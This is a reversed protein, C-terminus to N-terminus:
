RDSRIKKRLVAATLGGLAVLILLAWLSLQTDDGTKPANSGTQQHQGAANTAAPTSGAESSAAPDTNGEGSGTPEAGTEGGEGAESANTGQSGSTPETTPETSSPESSEQTSEGTSEGPQEVTYNCAVSGITLAGSTVGDQFRYVPRQGGVTYSADAIAFGEYNASVDVGAPPLLHVVGPETTGNLKVQAGLNGYGNDAMVWLIDEYTDYDLAMAGGIKPNIESVQVASGDENLVYAYVHGNDELAVFFVGAGVANPYHDASFPSGTNQDVLLTEVDAFSVWEVAEIGMNASVQPLSATLDWEKQAVLDEGEAQPDVMLITNYNVGKASNDRESALYVMGNGDVTIGEADPGAAGPDGADKQFRVRKGNEFGDAFTLTGDGAVDLVWFRGTGNDVAYLQGGAFDLGSSDELFTSTTDFATVQDAGPWSIEDPIGAFQNAAGPTAALTNRYETGNVDPYLGWTPNTHDTWTTSAIMRGEEFLRVTDGKGLGFGLDDLVLFGGASIVTGDPIVYSHADDEDRIEIGSVDLPQSTPNALEVWDPGGDPDNSQIENLVVPNTELNVAGKTPVAFDVFDGTGDPIRAYVGNAHSTWSYEAVVAGSRNHITVQDESGLGFSFDRNGDFVYYEGPNLVTGETVPTTENQHGVPDNDLLYWGSIDVPTSGMNLIEVWDTEDGNSEVENIVVEPAYWQNAAGPTEPMLCFDGTGDPYRGYSAADDHGNYSAHETWSYTDALTGDAQYLRISDGSGIGIAAEFTGAEYSQSQDHYVLGQSAADVVLLAGAELTTGQPFQWRHDDSDDRLEWGSLDLISGGVNMVEVWDDPASNIENIVLRGPNEEPEVHNLEGKTADQDVFDGTGDPVRAYTGSAHGTYSYTDIPQSEGNYLTVTDEKGLGFDFDSADELVLVQGAALVTGEPFPQTEGATLRELGKDDTVFWGSIDVDSEGANVLEVWDNGGNPDDSEIENLFITNEAAQVQWAAPAPVALVAALSVAVAACTTGKKM